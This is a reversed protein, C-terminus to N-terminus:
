GRKNQLEDFRDKWDDDPTRKMWLLRGNEVMFMAWYNGFRMRYEEAVSAFLEEETSLEQLRGVSRAKPGVGHLGLINDSRDGTLLQKYFNRLGDIETVFFPEREEQRGAPWTYHWGPVMLLDKDRSCIITSGDNAYQAISVADDAEMGHIIECDRTRALYWYVSGWHFPRSERDRTGKYTTITALEDRFNGKGTLYGQWTEAETQELVQWIRDEVRKKVLPWKLPYGEDDIASGFEYCLIDADILAHM